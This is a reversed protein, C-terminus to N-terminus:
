ALKPQPHSLRGYFGHPLLKINRQLYRLRRRDQSRNSSRTGLSARPHDRLTSNMNLSSISGSAFYIFDKSIHAVIIAGLTNYNVM